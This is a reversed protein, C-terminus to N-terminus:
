GGGLQSIVKGFATAATAADVSVGFTFAPRWLTETELQGPRVSIPDGDELDLEDVLRTVKGFRLGAHALFFGGSDLSLGAFVNDLANGSVPVAVFPGVGLSGDRVRGAGGPRANLYYTFMFAYHTDFRGGEAVLVSDADSGAPADLLPVGSFAREPLTSVLPGFSVAGRFVKQVAFDVRAVDRTRGGSRFSLTVEGKPPAFDQVPFRRVDCDAPAAAAFSARDAVGVLWTRDPDRATSTRRVGVRQLIDRLGVVFVDLEQDEALTGESRAVVAGLADLVLYPGDVDPGYLSEPPVGACVRVSEFLSDAAVPEQALTPAAVLLCLAAPISRLIRPPRAVPETRM